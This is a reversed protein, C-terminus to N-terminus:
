IGCSMKTNNSVVAHVEAIIWEYLWPNTNTIQNVPKGNHLHKGIISTLRLCNRSLYTVTSM